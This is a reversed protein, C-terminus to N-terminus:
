YHSHRHPSVTDPSSMVLRGHRVGKTSILKDGLQQVDRSRGRLIV